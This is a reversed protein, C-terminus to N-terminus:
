ASRRSVNKWLDDAVKISAGYIHILSEPAIVKTVLTTKGSKSPGSISVVMKPINFARRLDEEYNKSAREVYTVTPVDTPTFVATASAM